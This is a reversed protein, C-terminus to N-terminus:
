AIFFKGLLKAGDQLVIKSTNILPMKGQKMPEFMDLKNQKNAFMNHFSNNKVIAWLRASIQKKTLTYVNSSFETKFFHQSAIVM